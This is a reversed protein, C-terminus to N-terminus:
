DVGSGFIIIGTLKKGWVFLAFGGREVEAFL